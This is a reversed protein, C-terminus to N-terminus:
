CMCPDSSLIDKFKPNTGEVNYKTISHSGNPLKRLMFIPQRSANVFVLNDNEFDNIIYEYTSDTPITYSKKTFENTITM